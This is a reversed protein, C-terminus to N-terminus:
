FFNPIYWPTPFATTGIQILTGLVPVSVVGGTEQVLCVGGPLFNGATSSYIIPGWLKFVPVIPTIPVYPMLLVIPSPTAVVVLAGNLCHPDFDLLLGSFDVTPKPISIQAYSNHSIFLGTILFLVLTLKKM